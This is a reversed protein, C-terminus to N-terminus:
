VLYEGLEIKTALIVAAAHSMGWGIAGYARDSEWFVTWGASTIKMPTAAIAREREIM